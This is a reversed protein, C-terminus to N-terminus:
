SDVGILSAEDVVFLTHRAKNPALSFQGYGNANVSKQRYIHKHVTSAPRGSMSSLVKASRGTPALLVSKIGVRRLVNIVAGLATTKGTGAYGNIVFIDGEDTCLFKAIDKFLADQCPTAEVDLAKLFGEYLKRTDM